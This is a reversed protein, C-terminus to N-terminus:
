IMWLILILIMEIMCTLTFLQDVLYRTVDQNIKRLESLDWGFQILKHPILLVFVPLLVVCFRKNMDLGCLSEWITFRKLELIRHEDQTFSKDRLEQGVLQPPTQWLHQWLRLVSAAPFRM